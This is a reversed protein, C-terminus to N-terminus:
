VCTRWNPRSLLPYRPTFIPAYTLDGIAEHVEGRQLRCKARLSRLSAMGSAVMVANGAHAVCAGYDGRAEAEVAARVEKEAEDVEVISDGHSRGAKQFDKRAASWDGARSKLKARQLLAAEFDPKLSLVADFDASAQSSKGLSLYTAGRKFITLYNTPDKKIAADFHDLAGYMDGKALLANASAILSQVPQDSSPGAAAATFSPVSSMIAAALALKGLRVIM